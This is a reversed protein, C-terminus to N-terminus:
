EHSNGDAHTPSLIRLRMKMIMIVWEITWLFYLILVIRIRILKRLYRSISESGVIFNLILIMRKTDCFSRKM